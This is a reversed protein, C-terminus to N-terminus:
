CATAPRRHSRRFTRTRGASVDTVTATSEPNRLASEMRRRTQEQEARILELALPAYM